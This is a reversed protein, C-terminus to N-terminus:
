RLVGSNVAPAERVVIQATSTTSLEPVTGAQGGGAWSVQWRVTARVAFVGGSRGVSPQRYTHGCTPSSAAPDMGPRWRTGPGTCTVRAGDGTSWQVRIPKATATVALGPVSATAARPAWSGPALWLWTPLNVFQPAPPAPNFKITPKPLRLTAVASQAVVAPDAAAVAEDPVWEPRTGFGSREGLCVKSYWGGPGSVGPPPPDDNAKKWECPSDTDGSYAADDSNTQSDKGTEGQGQPHRGPKKVKIRCVPNKPSAGCNVPGPTDDAQAPSAGIGLILVGAVSAPALLRPVRTLM